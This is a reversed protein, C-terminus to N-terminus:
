CWRLNTDTYVRDSFNKGRTPISVLLRRSRCYSNVLCDSHYWEYLLHYPQFLVKDRLADQIEDRDAKQDRLMEVSEVLSQLLCCEVM